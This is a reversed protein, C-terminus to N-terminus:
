NERRYDAVINLASILAEQYLSHNRGTAGLSRITRGEGAVLRLTTIMRGNGKSKAMVRAEVEKRVIQDAGWEKANRNDERAGPSLGEMNAVRAGRETRQYLRRYWEASIREPITLSVLKLGDVNRKTVPARIAARYAWLHRVRDHRNLGAELLRARRTQMARQRAARGDIDALHDGHLRHRRVGDAEAQEVLERRLRLLIRRSTTEAAKEETSIRAGKPRSERLAAGRGAYFEATALRSAQGTSLASEDLRAREDAMRDHDEAQAIPKGRMPEPSYVRGGDGDACPLGLDRAPTLHGPGLDLSDVSAFRLARGEPIRARRKAEKAMEAEVDALLERAASQHDNAAFLTAAVQIRATQSPTARFERWPMLFSAAGVHVVAADSPLSEIMQASM